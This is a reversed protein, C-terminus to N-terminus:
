LVCGPDFIVIVSSLNFALVKFKGSIDVRFAQVNKKTQQDDYWQQSLQPVILHYLAGYEILHSTYLHPHGSPNRTSGPPCVISVNVAKNYKEKTLRPVEGYYRYENLITREKLEYVSQIQAPIHV